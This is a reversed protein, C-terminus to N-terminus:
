QAFIFIRLIIKQFCGMQVRMRLIVTALSLTLLFFNFFSCPWVTIPANLHNFHHDTIGITLLSILFKLLDYVSNCINSSYRRLRNASLVVYISKGIFIASFSVTVTTMSSTPSRSQKSSSECHCIIINLHGRPFFIRIKWCNEYYNHIIVLFSFSALATEQKLNVSDHLTRKLIMWERFHHIM